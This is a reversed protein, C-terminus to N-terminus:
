NVYNNLVDDANARINLMAKRDFETSAPNIQVLPVNDNIRDYYGNSGIVIVMDAQDMWDIANQIAPKSTGIHHYTPGPSILGGCIPCYPVGAQNLIDISFEHGCKTCYNQNFSYWIDAVKTNGAIEHLYDVNTTVVADLHGSKELNAM